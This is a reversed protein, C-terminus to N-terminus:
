TAACYIESAEFADAERSSTLVPAANTHTVRIRDSSRIQGSAMLNSLPQVLVREIARKPM